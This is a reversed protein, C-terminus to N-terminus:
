STKRITLTGNFVCVSRLSTPKDKGLPIINGIDGMSPINYTTGGVTVTVQSFTAEDSLTKRVEDIKVFCENATKARVRIQVGYHELVKGTVQARGHVIGTTDYVTIVGDPSDPEADFYCPWNSTTGSAPAVGLGKLVLAARLIEAPTHLITNAM